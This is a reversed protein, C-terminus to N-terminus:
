IQLIKYHRCNIQARYSLRCFFYSRPDSNAIIVLLRISWFSKM